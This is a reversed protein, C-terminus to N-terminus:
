PSRRSQVGDMWNYIEEGLERFRRVEAVPFELNRSSIVKETSGPTYQNPSPQRMHFRRVASEVEYGRDRGRFYKEEKEQRERHMRLERAVFEM